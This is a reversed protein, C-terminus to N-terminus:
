RGNLQQPRRRQAPANVQRGARECSAANRKCAVFPKVDTPRCGRPDCQQYQADATTGIAIIAPASLAVAMLFGKLGLM